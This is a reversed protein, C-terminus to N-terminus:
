LCEIYIKTYWRVNYHSCVYRSQTSSRVNLHTNTASKFSYSSPKLFESRVSYWAAVVSSSKANALSNKDRLSIVNKLWDECTLAGSWHGIQFSWAVFILQIGYHNIPVQPTDETIPMTEPEEYTACTSFYFLDRWTIPLWELVTLTNSM